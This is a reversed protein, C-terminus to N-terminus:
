FTQSFRLFIKPPSPLDTRWAFLLRMNGSRTGVGFGLDSKWGRTPNMIFSTDERVTPHVLDNGGSITAADAFLILSLSHSFWSMVPVEDLLDGRLLLEGNLLLMKTGSFEKFRYAPLSGLGGIEFSKQRPTGSSALGARARLRIQSKESIPQYQRVDLLYQSFSFDGGLQNGTANGAFEAQGHIRWGGKNPRNSNYTVIDTSFVISRMLGDEISPNPRFLRSPYFLSWNTQKSLSEYRDAGYTVQLRIQPSLYQAAHFSFGNRFFYDRYDLRVFLAATTNEMEDIIWSDKTDTGSHIEAGFETRHMNGFWFDWGLLYQWRHLAFAYGILGSPSHRQTGDWYYKKEHGIGVFFGEVRNYRFLADTGYSMTHVWNLDYRPFSAIWQREHYLRKQKRGREVVVGSISTSDSRHFQADILIINGEVRSGPKMSFTGDIVVIDGTVQGFLALRCGDVIITGALTDGSAISTDASFITTKESALKRKILTDAYSRRISDSEWKGMLYEQIEIQVNSFIRDVLRDIRKSFEDTTDRSSQGRTGTTIAFAFLLPCLAHIIKAGQWRNM